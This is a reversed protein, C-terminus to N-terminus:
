CYCTNDAVLVKEVGCVKAVSEAAKLCSEGAVLVSVKGTNLSNAATITNLTAGKLDQNDHEAIVLVTM